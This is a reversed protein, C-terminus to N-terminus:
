RRRIFCDKYRGSFLKLNRNADEKSVYQGACVQYYDGSPIIFAYFGRKKLEAVEREALDQRKFTVLQMTYPKGLDRIPERPAQVSPKRGEVPVPRAAVGSPPAVQVVSGLSKGRLIGLFFVACAALILLIGTLLLQEISTSILVPKQTKHLSPFRPKQKPGASGFEGFLEQQIEEQKIETM